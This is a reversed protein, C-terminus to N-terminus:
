VRWTSGELVTLNPAAFIWMVPWKDYEGAYGAQSGCEKAYQSV